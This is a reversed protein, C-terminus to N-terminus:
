ADYRRMNPWGERVLAVARAVMLLRQRADLCWAQLSLEEGAM